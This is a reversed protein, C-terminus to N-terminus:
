FYVVEIDVLADRPGKCGRPGILISLMLNFLISLTQDSLTLNYVVLLVGVGM